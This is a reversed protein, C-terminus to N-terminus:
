ESTPLAAIRALLDAVGQPTLYGIVDDTIPTAYTLTGDQGLVGVEFLGDGGGYSGRHRIISAGYGNPFRVHLVGGGFLPFAKTVTVNPVARLMPLFVPVLDAPVNESM